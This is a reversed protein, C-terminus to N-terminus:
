FDNDLKKKANRVKRPLRSNALALGVRDEPESLLELENELGLVWFASVLVGVGVTPQGKELAMVTPASVGIKIALEAITLLRRKRANRIHIGLTKLAERAKKPVYLM